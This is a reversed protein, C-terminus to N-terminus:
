KGKKMATTDLRTIMMKRMSSKLQNLCIRHKTENGNLDEDKGRKSHNALQKSFSGAKEEGIPDEWDIVLSADNM